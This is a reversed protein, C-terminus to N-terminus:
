RDETERLKQKKLVECSDNKRHSRSSSSRYIDETERGKAEHRDRSDVCAFSSTSKQVTHGTM